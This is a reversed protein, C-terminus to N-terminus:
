KRPDRKGLAEYEKPYEVRPDTEDAYQWYRNQGDLHRIPFLGTLSVHSTRQALKYISGEVLGEVDFDDMAERLLGTLILTCGLGQYLKNVGWHYPYTHTVFPAKVYGAINLLTDITLPHDCIVDQELSFVWRFGNEEAHSLIEKWCLGFTEQFTKRPTVHRTTAKFALDRAYAGGDKTNDVLLLSKDEYSFAHFAKLYEDLCDALGSYTPCAVLVSDDNM